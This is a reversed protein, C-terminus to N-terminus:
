VAGRLLEPVVRTKNKAPLEDEWRKGRLYTAPLPIFKPNDWIKEALRMRVDALIAALVEQSPKIQKWAKKADAKAERRPWASWFADFLEDSPENVTRQHNLQRNPHPMQVGLPAANAGPPAANAPTPHPMQVPAANAPPAANAGRSTTRKSAAPAKAPDFRSPTITYCTSTNQRYERFVVGARQLWKLADQVARESLCTRESITGVSPWCVGDDNAQDALAILVAKQSPSMQLPWCEAMIRTSM